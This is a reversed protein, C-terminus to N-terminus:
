SVDYEIWTPGLRADPNPDKRIRKWFAPQDDELAPDPDQDGRLVRHETKELIAEYLHKYPMKWRRKLAVEEVTPILAVLRESTMMELGQGRLTANHSGHHGVKYLVTRGLLEEATVRPAGVGDHAPYDQDHWSLWNGVQADAGFLMVDGGQELEFALVLSTNNTDSDLKLALQGIPGHWDTRVQQWKNERATYKQRIDWLNRYQQTSIPDPPLMEKLVWKDALRQHRRSFPTADMPNTDLCPDFSRGIEAAALSEDALYTEKRDPDKSPLDKFLREENRPPGFVYARLGVTGPTTRAQGPELYDSAPPKVRDKLRQLTETTTLSGESAALVADLPGMFNDLGIGDGELYFEENRAALVRMRAVGAGIALKTAGFMDRLKEAQPEGPKETWATWLAGIKIGGDLFLDRAHAFGSVHDWHEHTVVVLDLKGGTIARINEGVRRMREREEPVNQLIGCDILINAAAVQDRRARGSPKFLRILFCDGLLGTYMRVTVKPKAM